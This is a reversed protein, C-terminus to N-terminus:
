RVENLRPGAHASQRTAHKDIRSHKTEPLGIFSDAGDFGSVDLFHLLKWVGGIDDFHHEIADKEEKVQGHTTM